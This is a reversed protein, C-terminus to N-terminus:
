LSNMGRCRGALRKFNTVHGVNHKQTRIFPKGSCGLVYFRKRLRKEQTIDERPEGMLMLSSIEGKLIQYMFDYYKKLGMKYLHRAIVFFDVVHVVLEKKQQSTYRKPDTSTTLFHIIDDFHSDIIRVVFLHTNPLREELNTPEERTEIQLLHDLGVNLHRPKVVVEFDYEKFM